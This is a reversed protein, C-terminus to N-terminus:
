RSNNIRLDFESHIDHIPHFSTFRSLLFSAHNHIVYGRKSSLVVSYYPNYGDLDGRGRLREEGAPLHLLLADARERGAEERDGLGKSGM